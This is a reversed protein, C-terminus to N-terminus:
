ERVGLLGKKGGGLVRKKRVMMVVMKSVAPM